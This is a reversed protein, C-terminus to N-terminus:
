ETYFFRNRNIRLDRLIGAKPSLTISFSRYLGIPTINISMQWCHMDRSISTTLANIKALHVDYFSSMGLKWKDTLNFDGSWNLGSTILTKYTYDANLIQQFSLSFSINLSWTINFDAFEAPHTRVYNLQAQEEELTMPIQSQNEQEKKEEDALKQDKPKSKFSTSVALNGGTIRGLKFGKGNAWAYINKRNGLSDTVYPDLTAGGTISIGFITSRLYISIPSLKFSDALYNYSGNFGIGDILKVKKIGGDSTDKKSRVKMEINNDLGFTIGGFRQTGIPGSGIGDFYSVPRSHGLSDTQLNYYDKSSLGPNYSVAFTPRIVHHIGAITSNKGFKNFTGFIATSLSLSFSMDSATFFGKQTITDVKNKGLPGAWFQTRKKSYWNQQLSIGPAVQLPGIAPLSLSIPISHHASWQFTDIMSKFSFLSDYFSSLGVVSSTLGVGLKEYWKPTGIFEKNQFPFLTAMNFGISPLNVNIVRTVNDQNHNGSVTLNYKGASWNKSYAISSSLNNNYNAVPNNLVFQNFKTSAVNVNASFSQGPKAKTDVTHSWSLNFTRTDDFETKGTTSLIRTNQLTFNMSGSYRYRVKYTPRLYLAWGGYSYLDARTTVDFNDSLVQYWGMQTLGLGFQDSATFEPPLFGSHRGQVLPFFGFPIYIPLPVGEIEPHVPGTIAFKKNILKLKNTRFAFHPTDLNCTTFRGRLGYYVEPAVKKMKEGYVYMEGSSTYSSRTIGKQTKLNYIISDSEMKTDSGQTMIPRGNMKGSTDMDYTATVIQKDQDLEIKYAELNLDKQTVKAKSYLTGKNTPVDLVISDSASYSIPAELSDKSIKLEFTDTKQIISDKITTDKLVSDKVESDKVKPVPVTDISATLTKDFHTFHLYNAPSNFTVSFFVVTFILVLIYKSSIKRGTKM